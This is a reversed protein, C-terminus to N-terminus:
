PISSMSGWGTSVIFEDAGEAPKDGLSAAHEEAAALHTIPEPCQSRIVQPDQRPSAQGPEVSVEPRRRVRGTGAFDERLAAVAVRAAHASRCWCAMATDRLFVVTPEAAM